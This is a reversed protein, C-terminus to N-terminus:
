CGFRGVLGGIFEVPDGPVISLSDTEGANIELVYQAPAEPSYRPLRGTSQGPAPPPANRTIDVVTCDAGIWVIDLPFHMDKMWFNFRGQREYVFLMGRGPALNLRGSLGQIQEEVTTALEVPFTAEGVAVMLGSIEEPTKPLATAPPDITEPASLPADTPPLTPAAPARAVASPTVVPSPTPPPQPSPTPTNTSGRPGSPSVTQQPNEVSRTAAGGCAAVAVALLLSILIMMPRHYCSLYPGRHPDDRNRPQSCRIKAGFSMGGSSNNGHCHGALGMGDNRGQAPIWIGPEQVGQGQRAASVHQLYAAEAPTVIPLGSAKKMVSIHGQLAM